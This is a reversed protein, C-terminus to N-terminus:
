RLMSVKGKCPLHWAPLQTGVAVQLPQAKAVRGVLRQEMLAVSGPCLGQHM